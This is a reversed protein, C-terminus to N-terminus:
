PAYDVFVSLKVPDERSKPPLANGIFDLDDIENEAIAVLRRDITTFSNITVILIMISQLNELAVFPAADQVTVM